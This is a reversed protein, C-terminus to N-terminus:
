ETVPTWPAELLGLLDLARRLREADLAYRRAIWEVLAPASSVENRAEKVLAALEAHLRKRFQEEIGLEELYRGKFALALRGALNHPALVERIAREKIEKAERAIRLEELLGDFEKPRLGLARAAKGFAGRHEIVAALLADREKAQLRERLTHRDLLAMVDNLTLEAGARGLYGQALARWLAVRHPVQEVLATLLDRGDPKLLAHFSARSPDVRTFRGRPAPLNRRPLFSTAPPSAKVPVRPQRPAGAARKTPAIREALTPGKPRTAKKPRPAEVPPVPVVREHVPAFVRPPPRQAREEAIARAMEYYGTQQRQAALAPKAGRVVDVVAFPGLPSAPPEEDALAKVRVDDEEPLLSLAERVVAAPAPAKARRCFDSLAVAIPTPVDEPHRRRQWDMM